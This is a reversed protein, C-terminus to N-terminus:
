RTFLPRVSMDPELKRPFLLELLYALPVSILVGISFALSPVLIRPDVEGAWGSFPKEFHTTVHGSYLNTLSKLEESLRELQLRVLKYVDYDSDLRSATILSEIENRLEGIAEANVDLLLDELRNEVVPALERGIAEAHQPDPHTIEIRVVHHNLLFRGGARPGVEGIRIQIMDALKERSIGVEGALQEICESSNLQREGVEGFHPPMNRYYRLSTVATWQGLGFVSYSILGIILSWVPVM